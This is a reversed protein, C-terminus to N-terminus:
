RIMSDNDVAATAPYRTGPIVSISSHKQLHVKSKRRITLDIFGCVDTRELSSEEQKKDCIILVSLIRYYTYKSTYPYVFVFIRCRLMWKRSGSM